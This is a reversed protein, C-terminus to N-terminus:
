ARTNDPEYLFSIRVTCGRRMKPNGHFEHIVHHDQFTLGSTKLRAALTMASPISLQSTQAIPDTRAHRGLRIQRQIIQHMFYCLLMVQCDM